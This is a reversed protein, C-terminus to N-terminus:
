MDSQAIAISMTTGNPLRLWGNGPLRSVKLRNARTHLGTSLQKLYLNLIRLKIDNFTKVGFLSVNVPLECVNKKSFQDKAVSQWLYTKGTVWKGTLAIVKTITIKFFQM